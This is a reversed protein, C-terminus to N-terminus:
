AINGPMKIEFYPKSLKAEELGEVYQIALPIALSFHRITGV